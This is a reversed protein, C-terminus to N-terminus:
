YLSCQHGFAHARTYTHTDCHFFTGSSHCARCAVGAISWTLLLLCFAFFIVVLTHTHTHRWYISQVSSAIAEVIHPYFSLVINFFCASLCLYLSIFQCLPVLSLPLSLSLSLSLSLCLSRYAYFPNTHTPPQTLVLSSVQFSLANKKKMFWRHTDLTPIWSPLCCILFFASLHCM